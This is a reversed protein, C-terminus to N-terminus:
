VEIANFRAKALRVDHQSTKQTKKQFAIKEGVNAVYIVRFTGSAERIRIESVGSGITSMPKWDDPELGQQVKDLQYGAERKADSPFACLDAYSSGQWRIEKM